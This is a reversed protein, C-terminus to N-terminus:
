CSPRVELGTGNPPRLDRPRLYSGSLPIQSGTAAAAEGCDTARVPGAPACGVASPSGERLTSVSCCCSKGGLLYGEM